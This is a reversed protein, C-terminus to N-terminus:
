PRPPPALQERVWRAERAAWDAVARHLGAHTFRHVSRCPLPDCGRRRKYEGGHGPEFRGLGQEWAWRLPFHYALNFHLYPLEESAGWIRGFLGDEGRLQFTAGVLADGRRAAFFVVDEAMRERVTTFFAPGLPVPDGHRAATNRYFTPMAEWLDDGAADGAVVELTLGQAEFARMERRIERRRKGDVRDLCGTDEPRPQWVYQWTLREIWGQRVFADAEDDACFQLHVSEWGRQAAADELARAATPLLAARDAGPETLVRPGRIPTWPIVGVARPAYSLGADRCADIIPEEWVFEGLWGTREFLPVLISGDRLHAPTWRDPGAVPLAAELGAFWGHRAAPGAPRAWADWLSADLAHVSGLLASV